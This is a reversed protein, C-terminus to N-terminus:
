LQAQVEQKTEEGKRGDKQHCSWFTPMRVYADIGQQKEQKDEKGTQHINWAGERNEM